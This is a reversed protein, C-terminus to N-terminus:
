DDSSYALALLSLEGDSLRCRNRSQYKNVIKDIRSRILKKPCRESSKEITKRLETQANNTSVASMAQLLRVRGTSTQVLAHPAAAFIQKGKMEKEKLMKTEQQQSNFHETFFPSEPCLHKRGKLKRQGEM